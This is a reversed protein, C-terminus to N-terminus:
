IIKIMQDFTSKWFGVKKEAKIKEFEEPTYVLIDIPVNLDYLKPFDLPRKIFETKTDKILLIDLDSDTSFERSVFSGFVYAAEVETCLINQLKEIFQEKTM